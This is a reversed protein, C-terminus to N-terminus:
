RLSYILDYSVNWGGPASAVEGTQRVTGDSRAIWSIRQRQGGPVTEGELVMRDTLSSGGQLVLLLGSTDVWVQYWLETRVDFMNYSTGEAGGSWNEELICGNLLSRIDNRGGGQGSVGVANWDGLWFDFQHHEEATCAAAPPLSPPQAASRTYRHRREVTWSSGGDESYELTVRVSDLYANEFRLRTLGGDPRTGPRSTLTGSGSFFGGSVVDFTGTEGDGRAIMWSSGGGGRPPVILSETARLSDGTVHTLVEKMAVGGLERTVHSFGDQVVSDGSAEFTVSRVEWRGALFSLSGEPTPGTPVEPGMPRPDEGCAMAVTCAACLLASVAGPARPGNM